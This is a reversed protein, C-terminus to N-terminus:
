EKKSRIVNAIAVAKGRHCYIDFGRTRYLPASLERTSAKSHGVVRVPLFPGSGLVQGMLCLCFALFVEIVVDMPIESPIDFGAVTAASVLSRYHLHSYAAHLLLVLGLGAATKGLTPM